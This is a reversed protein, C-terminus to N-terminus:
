PPSAPDRGRGAAALRTRFPAERAPDPHADFYFRKTKEYIEAVMADSMRPLEAIAGDLDHLFDPFEAGRRGLEDMIPPDWNLVMGRADRYRFPVLVIYPQLSDRLVPHAWPYIQVRRTEILYRYTAQKEHGVRARAALGQHAVIPDTLGASTEIVTPAECYYGLIAGGGPIAVRMPLGRFLERLDEGNRREHDRAERPYYRREDVIGHVGNFDHIASRSRLTSLAIAVGALAPWARAALSPRTGSVRVADALALEVALGLFPTTPILFRANMFDGGVWAVYILDTVGIVAALTLATRWAAAVGTTPPNEAASAGRRGALAAAVSVGVAAVFGASLAWYERAYLGIYILGQGLWARAASKAYFTNPLLDGYYALKWIAYPVVLAAVAIAYGLVRRPSRLAWLLFVGTVVAFRAGDPRSLCVLGEIVGAIVIWRAVPDAVGAASGDSREVERLAQVCAAYGTVVLLTFMSTELGSTAFVAWERHSAALIAAVPLAGWVDPPPGGRADRRREVTLLALLAITAAYCAISWANAWSEASVGLRLGLACWLTWLFNSYGEVREGVNYVLGHGDVLHRAYRFSIYADDGTWSLGAARVVGFAMAAMGILLTLPIAAPANSSPVAVARKAARKM